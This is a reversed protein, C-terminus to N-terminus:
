VTVNGPFAMAVRMATLLVPSILSLKCSTTISDRVQHPGPGPAAHRLPRFAHIEALVTYTALCSPMKVWRWASCESGHLKTSAHVPPSLDRVGLNAIMRRACVSRNGCNPVPRDRACRPYKVRTAYTLDQPVHTHRDKLGRQQLLTQSSQSSEDPRRASVFCCGPSKRAEKLVRKAELMVYLM